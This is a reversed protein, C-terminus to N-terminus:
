FVLYFSQFFLRGLYIVEQDAEYIDRNSNELFWEKVAEVGNLYKICKQETPCFTNSLSSKTYWNEVYVFKKDQPIKTLDYKPPEHFTPNGRICDATISKRTVVVDSYGILEHKNANANTM